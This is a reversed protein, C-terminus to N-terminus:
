ALMKKRAARASGRAARRLGNAVTGHDDRIVDRKGRSVARQEDDVYQEGVIDPPQALCVARSVPDADADTMEELACASVRQLPAYALAEWADRPHADDNGNVGESSVSGSTIISAAIAVSGQVLARAVSRRRETRTDDHVDAAQEGCAGRSEMEAGDEM